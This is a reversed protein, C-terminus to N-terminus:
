KGGKKHRFGRFKDFFRRIACWVCGFFSLEFVSVVIKEPFESIQVYGANRAARKVKLRLIDGTIPKGTESEYVSACDAWTMGNVDHMARFKLLFLRRQERKELEAHSINGHPGQPM